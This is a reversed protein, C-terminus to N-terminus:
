NIPLRFKGAIEGENNCKLIAGAKGRGGVSLQSKLVVPYGLRQRLNEQKKLHSQLMHHQFELEM